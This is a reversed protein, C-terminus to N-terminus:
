AHLKIKDGEFIIDYPLGVAQPIQKDFEVVFPSNRYFETTRIGSRDYYSVELNMKKVVKESLSYSKLVALENDVNQMNGYYVGTMISTPDLMSRDSKVLVTGSVQYLPTKLFNYLWGLSVAIFVCILFFYWRNLFIYVLSRIDISQEETKDQTRYTPNEQTNSM